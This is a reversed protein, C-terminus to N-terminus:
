YMESRHIDGPCPQNLHYKYPFIMDVLKRFPSNLRQTLNGLEILSEQDIWVPDKGQELVMLFVTGNHEGSSSWDKLIWADMEALLAPKVKGRHWFMGEVPGDDDYDPVIDQGVKAAKQLIKITDKWFMKREGNEM